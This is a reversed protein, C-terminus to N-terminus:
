RRSGAVLSARMAVRRAPQRGNASGDPEVRRLQVRLPEQHELSGILGTMLKNEVPHCSPCSTKPFGRPGCDDRCGTKSSSHAEQGSVQNRARQAVMWPVGSGLLPFLVLAGARCEKRRKILPKIGLNTFRPFPYLTMPNPVM